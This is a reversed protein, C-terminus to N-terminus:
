WRLVLPADPRLDLVAGEAGGGIGLELLPASAREVRVPAPLGEFRAPVADVMAVRCSTVPRRLLPHPVAPPAYAADIAFLVPATFPAEGREREAIRIRMGAPLYPPLHDWTAFPLARADEERLCIGFPSAGSTRWDTRAAFGLRDVPGAAAALADDIWLFELMADGFFVCHNSTGQGVHRRSRGVRLGRALLPGIEPAGPRCCVFVHDLALGPM